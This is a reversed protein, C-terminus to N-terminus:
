RNGKGHREERMYKCHEVICDRIFGKSDTLVNKWESRYRTGDIITLWYGGWEGTSTLNRDAEKRLRRLLRTKM